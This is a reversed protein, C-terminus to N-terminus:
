NMEISDLAWVVGEAWGEPAQAVTRYDANVLRALKDSSPSEVIVSRTAAELMAADNASDGLAITSVKGQYCAALRGLARGKDCDGIIHFFRGGQLVSLGRSELEQRLEQLSEECDQWLFPESFERARAQEAQAETLGTLEVVKDVACSSLTRYRDGSVDINELVEDISAKTNGLVLEWYGDRASAGEPRHFGGQPLYLCSGNEVIFADDVGLENRITVTETFTKSTNLVVPIGRQNLIDITPLTADFSYDHHNLLTGDLDTVVMYQIRESNM